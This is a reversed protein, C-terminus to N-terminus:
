DLLSLGLSGLFLTRIFHHFNRGLTQLKPQLEDLLTDDSDCEIYLTQTLEDPANEGTMNNQEM